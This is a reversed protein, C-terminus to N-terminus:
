CCDSCRWRRPRAACLRGAGRPDGPKGRHHRCQPIRHTSHVPRRWGGGRLLTRAPNCQRDDASRGGRHAAPFRYRFPLRRWLAVHWDVGMGKVVSYTFYANLGMGPALAIPYRAFAGMLLSGLAAALCTAATVGAAPMGAEHLISPNVFIIYAMTMFTTVGALLETKWNTGLAAFEFYREAREVLPM